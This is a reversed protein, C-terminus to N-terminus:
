AGSGLLQTVPGFPAHRWRRLPQPPCHLGLLHDSPRSSSAPTVGTAGRAAIRPACPLYPHASPMPQATSPPWPYWTTSDPRHAAPAWTASWGTPAQQPADHFRFSSRHGSPTMRTRTPGSPSPPLSRQRLTSRHGALASSGSIGAGCPPPNGCTDHHVPAILSVRLTFDTISAESHVSAATRLRLGTAKGVAVPHARFPCAAM